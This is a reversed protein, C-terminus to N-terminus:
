ESPPSGRVAQAAYMHGTDRNIRGILASAAEMFDTTDREGRKTEPDIDILAAGITALLVTMTSNMSQITKNHIDRLASVLDAFGMRNDAIEQLAEPSALIISCLRDQAAVIQLLSVVNINYHALAGLTHAVEEGWRLRITNLMDQHAAVSADAITEITPKNPLTM